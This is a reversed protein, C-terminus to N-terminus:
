VHARGIEVWDPEKTIFDNDASSYALAPKALKVPCVACILYQFIHSPNANDIEGEDNASYVYDTDYVDHMLLILNNGELNCKEIIEEVFSQVLIDDYFAEQSLQMLREHMKGEMVESLPFGVISLTRGVDGSLVRKFIQTYKEAETQGMTIMSKSIESIVAKKSNVYWGRIDIPSHGDPRLRNKIRAIDTKNM